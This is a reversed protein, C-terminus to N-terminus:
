LLSESFFLSFLNTELNPFIHLPLLSFIFYNGRQIGDFGYIHVAVQEQSDINFHDDFYDKWIRQVEGEGLALRGNGDKIRSCCEVKGGNRKGGEFVVELKGNVHQNM